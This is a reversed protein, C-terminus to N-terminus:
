QWPHSWIRNNSFFILKPCIRLGDGRFSKRFNGAVRKNIKRCLHKLVHRFFYKSYIKEDTLLIDAEKIRVAM